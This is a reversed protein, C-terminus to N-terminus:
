LNLLVLVLDGRSGPTFSGWSLLIARGLLTVAELLCIRLLEHSKLCLLPGMLLHPPGMIVIYFLNFFFAILLNLESVEDLPEVPSELYTGLGDCASRM